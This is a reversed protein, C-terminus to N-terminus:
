GADHNIAIHDHKCCEQMIKPLRLFQVPGAPKRVGLISIENTMNNAARNHKFVLGTISFHCPRGGQGLSGQPVQLMKHEAM